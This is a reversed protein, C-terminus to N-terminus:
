YRIEYEAVNDDLYDTCEAMTGEFICDAEDDSDFELVDYNDNNFYRNLDNIVADTLADLKSQNDKKFLYAPAEIFGVVGSDWPCSFPGTSFAVGGHIYAYVAIKGKPSKAKLGNHSFSGYTGMDIEVNVLGCIIEDRDLERHQVIYKM